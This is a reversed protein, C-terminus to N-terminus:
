ARGTAAPHAVRVLAPRLVRDHLRYGRQVDDVVTDIDVDGGEVSGIAEHLSPDFPQGVADIPVVGLKELAAEFERVVLELGSVFFEETGAEAAHAVARRLNDLVPLLARAADESAYRSRDALEQSKRRRFNEFDAALRLYREDPEATTAPAAAEVVVEADTDTDGRDAGPTSPEQELDEPSM